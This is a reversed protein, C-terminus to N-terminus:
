WSHEPSSALSLSVLMKDLYTLVEEKFEYSTSATDKWGVDHNVFYNDVVHFFDGRAHPHLLLSILLDSLVERKYIEALCQSISQVDSEKWIYALYRGAHM